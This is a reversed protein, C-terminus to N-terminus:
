KNKVLLKTDLFHHKISYKRSRLELRSISDHSFTLHKSRESCHELRLILNIAGVYPYM